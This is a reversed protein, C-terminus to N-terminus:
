VSSCDEIGHKESFWECVESATWGAEWFERLQSETLFERLEIKFRKGFSFVLDAKFRLFSPKMTM